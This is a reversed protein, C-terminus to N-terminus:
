DAFVEALSRTELLRLAWTELQEENADTLRKEVWAPLPGFRRTLQKRLLKAEGRAEGRAEGEAAGEAFVEQYFRTQRLDVDHLELMRRIEERSVRPLKYVLITEVLDLLVAEPLVPETGAPPERLLRRVKDPANAAQGALLQVLQLGVTSAPVGTWDELYVRRVEPLRVASGYRSSDLRESQRNPYIVVAWWPRVPVMRYLYLFIEAFLRGYFDDEAQMQAEVFVVPLEPNAEPPMLVGDLRFATQKLEEARFQYGRPDAVELGGLEFVLGPLAQFLRYFLADTKM